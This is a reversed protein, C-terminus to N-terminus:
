KAAERPKSQNSVRKKQRAILFRLDDRQGGYTVCPFPLINCSVQRPLRRLDFANELAPSTPLQV